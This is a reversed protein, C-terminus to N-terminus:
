RSNYHVQVQVQARVQLEPGQAEPVQYLDPTKM